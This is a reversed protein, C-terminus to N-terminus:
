ATPDSVITATLPGPKGAVSASMTPLTQGLVGGFQTSPMKSLMVWADLLPMYSRHRKSFPQTIRIAFGAQSITIQQNLGAQLHLSALSLYRERSM